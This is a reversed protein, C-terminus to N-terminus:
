AGRIENEEEESCALRDKLVAVRVGGLRAVVPVGHREVALGAAASREREVLLLHARRRAGTYRHRPVDPDPTKVVVVYGGPKHVM